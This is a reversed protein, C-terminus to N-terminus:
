RVKAIINSMQSINEMEPFRQYVWIKNYSQGHHCLMVDLRDIAFTSLM